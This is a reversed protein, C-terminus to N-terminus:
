QDDWNIGDPSIRHKKPKKKTNIRPPRLIRLSEASTNPPAVTPEEVVPKETIILKGWRATVEQILSELNRWEITNDAVNVVWLDPGQAVLYDGDPVKWCIDDTEVWWEFNRTRDSHSKIIAGKETRVLVLQYLQIPNEKSHRIALKTLRPMEIKPEENM